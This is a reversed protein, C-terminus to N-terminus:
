ATDPKLSQQTLCMITELLYLPLLSTPQFQDVNAKSQVRYVWNYIADWEAPTPQVNTELKDIFNESIQNRHLSLLNSNLFRGINERLDDPYVFLLPLNLAQIRGLLAVQTNTLFSKVDWPHNFAYSDFAPRDMPPEDYNHFHDGLWLPLPLNKLADVFWGPKKDYYIDM